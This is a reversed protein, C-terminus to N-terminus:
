FWNLIPYNSSWGLDVQNSWIWEFVLEFISRPEVLISTAKFFVHDLIWYFFKLLLLNILTSVQCQESLIQATAMHIQHWPSSSLHIHMQTWRHRVNKHVLFLFLSSFFTSMSRVEPSSGWFNPLYKLQSCKAASSHRWDMWSTDSTSDCDRLGEKEPKTRWDEPSFVRDNM